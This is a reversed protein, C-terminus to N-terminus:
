EEAIEISDPFDGVNLGAVRNFTQEKYSSQSESDESITIDTSKLKTALESFPFVKGLPHTELAFKIMRIESDTLKNLVSHPASIKLFYGEDFDIAYGIKSLENVDRYITRESTGCKKALEKLSVRATPSLYNLLYILRESKKM